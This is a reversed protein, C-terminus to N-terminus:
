RQGDSVEPRKVLPAQEADLRDNIWVELMGGITLGRDHAHTRIREYTEGRLSIDHVNPKPM